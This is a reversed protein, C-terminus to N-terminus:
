NSRLSPIRALSDKSFNWTVQISIAISFCFGEFSSLWRKSSTCSCLQQVQTVIFTSSPSPVPAPSLLTVASWLSVASFLLFMGVSFKSASRWSDFNQISSELVNLALHLTSILLFFISNHFSPLSIKIYIAFWPALCYKALYLPM